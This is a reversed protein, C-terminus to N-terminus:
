NPPTRVCIQGVFAVNTCQPLPAICDAASGCEDTCFFGADPPGEVCVASACQDGSDCADVANQGTGRAGPACACGNVNDCQCRLALQCDRNFSCTAGAEGPGNADKAASDRPADAGADTPSASDAAEAEAGAADKTTDADADDIPAVETTQCAVAVAASAFLAALSIAALPRM